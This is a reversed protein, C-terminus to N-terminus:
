QFHQILKRECFHIKLLAAQPEAVPKSPFPRSIQFSLLLSFVSHPTVTNTTSSSKTTQQTCVRAHPDTLAGPFLRAFATGTRHPCGCVCKEAVKQSFVRRVRGPQGQPCLSAETPDTADPDRRAGAGPMLLESVQPLAPEESTHASSAGSGASRLM